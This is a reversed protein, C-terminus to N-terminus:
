RWMLYCSGKKRDIIKMEIMELIIKIIMLLEEVIIQWGKILGNTLFMLKVDILKDLLKNTAKTGIEIKSRKLQQKKKRM